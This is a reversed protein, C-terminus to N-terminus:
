EAARRRVIQPQGTLVDCAIDIRSEGHAVSIGGGSSGGLHSFSFVPRSIGSLEDSRASEVNGVPEFPSKDDTQETEIDALAFAELEFGEPFSVTRFFRNTEPEFDQLGASNSFFEADEATLKRAYGSEAACVLRAEPSVYVDVRLKRDMAASRADKFLATLSLAEKRLQQKATGSGSFSIVAVATMIMIIVLVVLLEIMTFGSNLNRRM